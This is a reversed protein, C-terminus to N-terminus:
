PVPNWFTAPEAVPRMLITRLREAESVSEESTRDSEDFWEDPLESWFTDFKHIAQFLVPTREEVFEPTWLARSQCFVHMEWLDAPVFERDFAAQHDILKVSAADPSCILNPNGGLETLMRDNNQIWWDFLLVRAGLQPDVARSVSWSIEQAGEQFLSGFSDGTGLEQIGRIASDEVLEPPVTVVAIPPIPLGLEQAYRGAIWESRLAERGCGVKGKVVYLDGNDSRCIFPETVGQETRRLVESIAVPM